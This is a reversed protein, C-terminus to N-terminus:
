KNIKELMNDIDKISNEIIYGIRTKEKEIDMEQKKIDTISLLNNALNDIDKTNLKSIKNNFERIKWIYNNKITTEFKSFMNGKIGNADFYKNKRYNLYEKFRNMIINMEKNVNNEAEKVSKTQKNNEIDNEEETIINGDDLEFEFNLKKEEIINEIPNKINLYNCQDCLHQFSSITANSVTEIIIKPNYSDSLRDNNLEKNIYKLALMYFDMNIFLIYNDISLYNKSERNNIFIIEKDISLKAKEYIDDYIKDDVGLMNFPKFYFLTLNIKEKVTNSLNRYLKSLIYRNQHIFQPELLTYYSENVLAFKSLMMKEKIERRRYIQGNKVRVSMEIKQAHKNGVFEFYQGVIDKGVIHVLEESGIYIEYILRISYMSKLLEIFIKEEQLFAMDEYLKMWTIVDGLTVSEEVVSKEMKYLEDLYSLIKYNISEKYTYLNTNLYILVKKNISQIPCQLLDNLFERMYLDGIKNVIVKNFYQKMSTLNNLINEKNKIENISGEYSELKELTSFLFILDILGRLNNPIIGNYHSKTVITYRLYEYFKKVVFIEITEAEKYNLNELHVEIKAESGYIEPMYIRKNYPIVKELYKNTKNNLEEDLSKTMYEQKSNKILKDTDRYYNVLGNLDNINKQKIVEELQEFKVAMMIIVQPIILYKRIDEIMKEGAAINMDLDDITITLFSKGVFSKDEEMYKLYSDVLNEIDNKLAIASSLDMLVELNDQNETYIDNKGKNLTRLDKYVIEFKKVLEQKKIYDKKENKAKFKKFMEAVVIEIISDTGNFVSPDIIDLDYFKNKSINEYNKKLAQNKSLVNLDFLQQLSNKFSIMSSTKGTGREGLFSIINNFEEDKNENEACNSSSKKDNSDIINILSETAKYYVDAFFSDEFEDLNEVKIKYVCDKNIKLTKM